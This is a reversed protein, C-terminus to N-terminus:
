RHLSPTRLNADVLCVRRQYEQAMALALNAATLSKGDGEGPSTILLVHVAAGTDTHMIRTRLSRYQEPALRDSLAAPILGTNGRARHIERYDTAASELPAAEPPAAPPPAVARAAPEAAVHLRHVVGDREAKELINQIRS